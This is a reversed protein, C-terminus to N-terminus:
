LRPWVLNSRSVAVGAGHDCRRRIAVSDVSTVVRAVEGPGQFQRSFATTAPHGLCLSLRAVSLGVWQDEGRGEECWVGPWGPGPILCLVGAEGAGGVGRIM